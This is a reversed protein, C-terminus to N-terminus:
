ATEETQVQWITESGTSPISRIRDSDTAAHRLSTWSYGAAEGAKRFTDKDVVTISDRDLGDIYNATWEAASVLKAARGGTISWTATGGKRDLTHVDPHNSAAQRILGKAYGQAMGAEIAAFATTTTHGAAQLDAIYCNFWQPCSVKPKGTEHSRRSDLDTVTAALDPRVSQTMGESSPNHSRVGHTLGSGIRYRVRKAGNYEDVRVSVLGGAELLSIAQDFLDRKERKGLRSRLINGPQEGDRELMRMISRKVTELRSADYFDEGIARGIARERVKARAARRAEEIIWERTQDSVAMVVASMQWDLESVVSRHHLIALGAAVKCRTLMRHGDLADSEGRQRALHAAIIQQRIEDPGYLIEVKETTRSWAPLEIDLPDPDAAPTSPMNPDTTPVWLVRQPTGGSTDNFIVDCHGPQAGISMVCRYTHPLVIRTTAESANSQGILEGMVAAKLQALLISGQRSAIGALSDIESVNIIAQTIRQAGEKKPPSFLAAIGEGSGIPREIIPAPWALRGVKDSIGKGGGSPSVFAGIMNLSAPGGIVGPLQVGPSTSACVRLLVALFVAWTAAFRAHAWQRITRLQETADFFEDDTM